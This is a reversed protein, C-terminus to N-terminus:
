YQVEAPYRPAYKTFACSHYTGTMAATLNGLATDVNRFEPHLVSDRGSGTRVAQHRAVEAALDAELGPLADSYVVAEPHIARSACDRVRFGPSRTM